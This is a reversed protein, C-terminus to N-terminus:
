GGSSVMDKYIDRDDNTMSFCMNTLMLIQLQISTSSIYSKTTKEGENLHNSYKSPQERM